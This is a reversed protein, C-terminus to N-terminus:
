RCGPVTQRGETIDATELVGGADASAAFCVGAAAVVTALIEKRANM